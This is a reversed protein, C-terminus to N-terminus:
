LIKDQIISAAITVVVTIIVAVVLLTPKILLFIIGAAAGIVASLVPHYGVGFVKDMVGAAVGALVVIAILAAYSYIEVLDRLM